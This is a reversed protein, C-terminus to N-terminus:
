PQVPQLRWALGYDQQAAGDARVVRLRYRGRQLAAYLNETTEATSSSCDVQQWQDESARDLCLDLNTYVATTGAFGAALQPFRLNWALTVALTGADDIDLEYVDQQQVDDVYNFGVPSVRGAAQAGAAIIEWSAFVDLQGAGLRSDLGNT